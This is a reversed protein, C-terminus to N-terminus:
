RKRGASKRRCGVKPVTFCGRDAPPSILRAFCAPNTHASPLPVGQLNESSSHRDLGSSSLLHTRNCSTHLRPCCSERRQVRVISPTSEFCGSFPWIESRDLRPVILFLLPQLGPCVKGPTLRISGMTSYAHMPNHQFLSPIPGVRSGAPLM